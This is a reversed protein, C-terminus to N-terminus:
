ALLHILALCTMGARISLCVASAIISQTAAGFATMCAHLFQTGLRSRRNALAGTAMSIDQASRHGDAKTTNRKSEM